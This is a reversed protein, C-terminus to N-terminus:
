ASAATSLTFLFHLGMVGTGGRVFRVILCPTSTFLTRSGLLEVFIGSSAEIPFKAKGKVTTKVICFLCVFM